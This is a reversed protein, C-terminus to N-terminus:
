FCHLSHSVLIPRTSSSSLSSVFYFTTACAFWLLQRFLRPSLHATSTVPFRQMPSWITFPYRLTCRFPLTHFPSLRPEVINLNNAHPPALLLFIFDVFLHACGSRNLARVLGMLYAFSVTAAYATWPPQGWQRATLRAASRASFQHVPHSTHARQRFEPRPPFTPLPAM